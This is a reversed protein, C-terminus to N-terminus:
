KCFYHKKHYLKENELDTIGEIISIGKIGQLAATTYRLTLKESYYAVASKGLAGGANSIRLDYTAGNVANEICVGLYCNKLTTNILSSKNLYSLYIVGKVTASNGIFQCNEIVLESKSLSLGSGTERTSAGRITSNLIYVISADGTLFGGMSINISDIHCNQVLVHANRFIIIGPHYDNTSISLFNSDILFIDVEQTSLVNGISPRSINTFNTQLIFVVGEKRSYVFGNSVINSIVCYKIVLLGSYNPDSDM